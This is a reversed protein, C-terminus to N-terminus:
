PETSFTVSIIGGSHAKASPKAKWCDPRCNGGSMLAALMIPCAVMGTTSNTSPRVTGHRLRTGRRSIRPVAITLSSSAGSM